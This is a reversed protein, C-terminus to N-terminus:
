KKLEIFFEKNGYLTFLNSNIKRAFVNAEKGIYREMDGVSEVGILKGVEEGDQLPVMGAVVVVEVDSVTITCMGDFICDNKVANIKGTWRSGVKVDEKNEFSLIYNTLPTVWKEQTLLLYLGLVILVFLFVNFFKLKNSYNNM